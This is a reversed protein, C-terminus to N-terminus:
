RAIRHVAAEKDAVGLRISAAAAEDFGLQQAFREANSVQFGFKKLFGTALM